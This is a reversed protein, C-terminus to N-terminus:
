TFLINESENYLIKHQKNENSVIKEIILNNGSMNKCNSLIMGISIIGAYKIGIQKEINTVASIKKQNKFYIDKLSNNGINYIENIRINNFNIKNTGGIRIGLCGKMTHSMIDKGYVIEINKKYKEFKKKSEVWEEMWEPINLTTIIPNKENKIIKALCCICNNLYSDNYYGKNDIITLMNIVDGFAGNIINGEYKVQIIEIPKIILNTIEINNLFINQSYKEFANNEASNKRCCPNTKTDSNKEFSHIAVGKPTIQIGTLVSGDPIGTKNLFNKTIEEELDDKIYGHSISKFDNMIYNNIIRRELKLINKFIDIAKTNSFYTSEMNERECNNYLIKTNRLVSYNGLVPVDRRSNQITVNNIVIDDINNLAIGGTEFEEIILNELIVKKNDNGHIAYHSTLGITGNKIIINEPRYFGSKSFTGSPGQNEIFPSNNLQIVQFFRQQLAHLPHQSIKFGNLDIIVNDSEINIASYFGLIFSSHKYENEKQIKKPLWDLDEDDNGESNEQDLLSNKSFFNPCNPNFIINEKLLYYGPETIRYTGNSFDKQSLNKGSHKIADIIKKEIKKKLNEM